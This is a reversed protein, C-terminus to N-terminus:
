YLSVDHQALRNMAFLSRASSRVAVHHIATNTERTGEKGKQVILAGVYSAQFNRLGPRMFSDASRARKHAQLLSAKLTSTM